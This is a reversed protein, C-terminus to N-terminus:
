GVGRRRSNKGRQGLFLVHQRCMRTRKSAQKSAQKTVKAKDNLSHPFLYCALLCALTGTDCYALHAKDPDFVNLLFLMLSYFQRRSNSLITGAFQNLNYIKRHKQNRRVFYVLEPKKDEYKRVGWLVHGSISNARNKRYFSNVLSSETAINFRFYNSVEVM